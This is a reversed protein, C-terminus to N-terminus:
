LGWEQSWVDAGGAILASPLAQEQSLDRSLGGKRRGPKGSRGVRRDKGAPEWSAAGVTGMMHTIM